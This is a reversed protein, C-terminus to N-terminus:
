FSTLLSYTYFDNLMSMKRSAVEALEDVIRGVNLRLLASCSLVDVLQGAALLLQEVRQLGLEREVSVM